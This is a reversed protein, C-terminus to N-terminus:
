TAHPKSKYHWLVLYLLPFWVLQHQAHFYLHTALLLFVQGSVVLILARKGKIGYTALAVHVLLLTTQDHFWGYPAFLLSLTLLYPITEELEASQRKKVSWVITGLIAIFPFLYKPWTVLEGRSFLIFRRVQDALVTNIQAESHEKVTTVGEVWFFAIGPCIAECFLLAVLASLALGIGIRWEKICLFLIALFFLHPKIAAILLFLGALHYRKARIMVLSLVFSGCTLLGLQGWRLAELAPAFIMLLLETPSPPREPRYISTSWVLIAPLLLINCTLWFAAGLHEPLSLFPAMVVLMWPPYLMNVYNPKHQGELSHLVTNQSPNDYPNLGREFLEFASYYYYYDYTGIGKSVLLESLAFLLM